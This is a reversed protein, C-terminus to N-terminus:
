DAVDPRFVRVNGSTSVARFALKHTNAKLAVEYSGGAYFLREGSSGAAAAPAAGWAVWVDVEPEVVLVNTAGVVATPMSSGSTVAITEGPFEMVASGGDAIRRIGPM